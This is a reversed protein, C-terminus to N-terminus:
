KPQLEAYGNAPSASLIEINKATETPPMQMKKWSPEAFQSYDFTTCDRAKVHKVRDLYPAKYTGWILITVDTWQERDENCLIIGHETVLAYAHLVQPNKPRVFQVWDRAPMVSDAIQWFHTGIYTTVLVLSLTGLLIWTHPRIKPSQM